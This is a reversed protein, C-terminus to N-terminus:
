GLRFLGQSVQVSLKLPEARDGGIPNNCSSMAMVCARAADLRLQFLDRQFTRHM